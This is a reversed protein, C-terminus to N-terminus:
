FFLFWSYLLFELRSGSVAMGCISMAVFTVPGDHKSNETKISNKPENDQPSTSLRPHWVKTSCDLSSSVVSNNKDVAVSLLRDSHGMLTALTNAQLTHYFLSFFHIFM